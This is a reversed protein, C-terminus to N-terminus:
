RIKIWPYGNAISNKSSTSTETEMDAVQLFDSYSQLIKFIDESDRQKSELVQGLRVKYFELDANIFYVVQYLMRLFVMIRLLTKKDLTRLIEGANTM